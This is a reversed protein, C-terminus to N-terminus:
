WEIVVSIRKDELCKQAQRTDYPDFLPFGLKKALNKILKEDFSVIASNGMDGINLMINKGSPALFYQVGQIIKIAM